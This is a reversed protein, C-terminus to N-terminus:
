RRRCRRLASPAAPPRRVTRRPHRPLRRRRPSRTPPRSTLFLIASARATTRPPMELRSHGHSDSTASREDGLGARRRHRDVEAMFRDEHEGVGQLRLPHCSRDRIHLSAGLHRDEVVTASVPRSASVRRLVLRESLNAVLSQAHGGLYRHGARAGCARRSRSPWLSRSGSWLSWLSCPQFCAGPGGYGGNV